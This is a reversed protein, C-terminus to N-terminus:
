QFGFKDMKALKIFLKPARVILVNPPQPVQHMDLSKFCPSPYDEWSNRLQNYNLPNQTKHARPRRQSEFLFTNLDGLILDVCIMIIVSLWEVSLWLYHLRSLECTSNRVEASCGVMIIGYYYWLLIMIIGYYWLLLM